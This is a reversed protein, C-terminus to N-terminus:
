LDKEAEDSVMWLLHDGVVRRGTCSATSVIVTGSSTAAVLTTYFCDMDRNWASWGSSPPMLTAWFDTLKGSPLADCGLLESEEGGVNM